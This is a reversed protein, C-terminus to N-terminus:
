LLSLSIEAQRCDKGGELEVTRSEKFYFRKFILANHSFASVPDESFPLTFQSFNARTFYLGKLIKQIKASFLIQAGFYNM